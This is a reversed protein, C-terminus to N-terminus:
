LYAIHEELYKFKNRPIGIEKIFDGKKLYVLKKKRDVRVIFSKNVIYSRSIRIFQNYKNLLLQITGIKLSVYEEKKPGLFVNTYNGDAECYVIDNPDILVYGSRNNLKIKVSEIRSLLSNYSDAHVYEVTNKYRLIASQLESFDVPKLLYDLVKNRLAKIVYKDNKTVIIVPVIADLARLEYLLEFGNTKPLDIDLFILDPKQKYIDILAEDINKALTIIDIEQIKELLEALKKQSAIENDVILINIKM